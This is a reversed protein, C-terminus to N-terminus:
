PDDITAFAHCAIAAAAVVNLSDVGAAMAAPAMPICVAQDAEQLWHSSLGDGETGLLLAAREGLAVRGIPAASQDPTLALLRFGAQRLADLGDRWDTLRASGASTATTSSTRWSWSGPRAPGPPAPRSSTPPWPCRRAACPPWRV